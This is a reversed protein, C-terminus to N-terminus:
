KSSSISRASTDAHNKQMTPAHNHSQQNTWVKSIEKTRVIKTNGTIAHINRQKKSKQKSTSNTNQIKLGSAAHNTHAKHFM